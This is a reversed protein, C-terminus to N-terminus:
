TENQEVLTYVLYKVGDIGIEIIRKANDPILSDVPTVFYGGMDPIEVHRKTESLQPIAEKIRSIMTETIQM